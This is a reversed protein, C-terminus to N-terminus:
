VWGGRMHVAMELDGAVRSLTACGEMHMFNFYVATQIKMPFLSGLKCAAGNSILVRGYGLQYDQGSEGKTDQMITSIFLRESCDTHPDESLNDGWLYSM